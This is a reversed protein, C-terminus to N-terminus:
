GALTMVRLVEAQSSGIERLGRRIARSLDRAGHGHDGAIVIRNAFEELVIVHARAHGDIAPEMVEDWTKGPESLVNTVIVGGPTLRRKMLGPLETRSIEPKVVDDETPISLDDVILEFAGDVSQLWDAADAREFRVEGAYDGAHERFIRHGCADLDVAHVQQRGGMARLPAIMGGGAFGLVVFDRQPAVAHVAAALVDFVSDTPGADSLLESLTAGNQELRVGRRTKVVEYDASEIIMSAAMRGIAPKLDLSNEIM